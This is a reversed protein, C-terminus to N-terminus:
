CVFSFYFSTQKNFAIFLCKDVNRAQYTVFGMTLWIIKRQKQLKTFFCFRKENVFVTKFAELVYRKVINGKSTINM